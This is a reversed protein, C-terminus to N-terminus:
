NKKFIPRQISDFLHHFVFNNCVEFVFNMLKIKQKNTKIVIVFSFM